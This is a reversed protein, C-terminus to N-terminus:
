KPPNQAMSKQFERVRRGAESIQDPTLPKGTFDGHPLDGKLEEVYHRALGDGNRLGLYFWKLAEVLDIKVGTGYMYMRGLNTYAKACGKQAAQNYYKLALAEDPAGGAEGHEHIFGLANLADPSGQTAAKEFWKDAEEFNAPIGKGGLYLDGLALQAEMRNQAAALQYWKVAEVANSTVGRGTSYYLGLSLEALPDGQDAAKHFWKIAETYDQPVGLGEAYLAGLNNQAKAYGQAASQRYYGAAQSYDQPVGIGKAYSRGLFFEAKPDGQAAAQRASDLTFDDAAQVRANQIFLALVAVAILPVGFCKKRMSM